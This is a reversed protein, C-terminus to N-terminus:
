ALNKYLMDGPFINASVLDKIANGYEFVGQEMAQMDGRQEAETLWINLPTMRREIYLHKIVVEEDNVELMSPAYQRIEELLEESFRSRPFAVDSYELTDAMRGVRDHNKV